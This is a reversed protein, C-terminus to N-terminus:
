LCLRSHILILDYSIIKSPTLLIMQCVKLHDCQLDESGHPIIVIEKDINGILDAWISWYSLNSYLLVQIWKSGISWDYSNVAGILCSVIIETGMMTFYYYSRFCYILNYYLLKKRDNEIQNNLMQKISPYSFCPM